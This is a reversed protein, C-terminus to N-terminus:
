GQHILRRVLVNPLGNCEVVLWNRKNGDYQKLGASQGLQHLIVEVAEVSNPNVVCPELLSFKAKKVPPADSSSVDSSKQKM